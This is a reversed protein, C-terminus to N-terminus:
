SVAIDDLGTEIFQNVENASPPILQKIHEYNSENNQEVTCQEINKTQGNEKKEYEKNAENM